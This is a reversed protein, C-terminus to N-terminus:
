YQLRLGTGIILEDYTFEKGSECVITNAEPKVLQVKEKEHFINDPIVKDMPVSTSHIQWLGAGVMTWGPQYYHNASPDIVRIESPHVGSRLLHTAINLGGSGGGLLCYRSHKAFAYRIFTTTKM